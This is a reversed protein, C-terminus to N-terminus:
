PVQPAMKRAIVHIRKKIHRVRTSHSCHSEDRADNSLLVLVYEPVGSADGTENSPNPPGERYRLFRYIADTWKEISSTNFRPLERLEKLFEEPTSIAEPHFTMPLPTQNGFISWSYLLSLTRFVLANAPSSLSYYAKGGRRYAPKVPLAEGFELVTLLSETMDANLSFPKVGKEKRTSDEVPLSPLPDILTPWVQAGKSTERILDPESKAISYLANTAEVAIAFLAEIAEAKSKMKRMPDFPGLLPDIKAVKSLGNIAEICENKVKENPM